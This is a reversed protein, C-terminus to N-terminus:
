GKVARRVNPNLVAQRVTARVTENVVTYGPDRKKDKDTLAENAQAYALNQRQAVIAPLGTKNLHTSLRPRSGFRKILREGKETKVALEAPPKMRDSLRLGGSEVQLGFLCGTSALKLVNPDAISAQVTVFGDENVEAGTVEGVTKDALMIPRSVFSKLAPRVGPVFDRRVLTSAIISRDGLDVGTLSLQTPTM